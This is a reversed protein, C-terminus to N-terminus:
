VVVHFIFSAWCVIEEVAYPSCQFTQEQTGESNRQAIADRLISEVVIILAIKFCQPSDNILVVTKQIVLVLSITQVPVGDMRLVAVSDGLAHFRFLKKLYAAIHQSLQLVSM